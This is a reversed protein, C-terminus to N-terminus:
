DDCKNVMVAFRHPLCVISEGENSIHRSNVCIQNKCDSEIVSIKGNNVSVINYGNDSSYTRTINENLSISDVIENDIMVSVIVNSNDQNLFYIFSFLLICIIIIALLLIDFKTFRKNNDLEKM